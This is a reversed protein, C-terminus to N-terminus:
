IIGIVQATTGAKVSRVRFPLVFYAPVATLTIDTAGSLPTVVVDGTTRTMVAVGDRAQLTEVLDDTGPTIVAADGPFQPINHRDTKYTVAM